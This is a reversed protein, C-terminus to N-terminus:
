HAESVLYPSADKTLTWKVNSYVYFFLGLTMGVLAHEPRELFTSAVTVALCVTSNILINPRYIPLTHFYTIQKGLYFLAMGSIALIRFDTMGIEGVIAHRILNALIALGMAFLVHSYLLPFGQEMRKTRELVDFSDFYIWWIAGIMLFGTAAATMNAGNWDIKQLGAVLSIVSEGLLIISLLGVREVFHSRHVSHVATRRSILVAAIMELAIGALFIAQRLPEDALLSTGSILAGVWGAVGMQRAFAVSPSEGAGSEGRRRSSYLYSTYLYMTALAGRIAVYFGILRGYHGFLDEGLSAAMTAILFMIGLTWVRYGKSDTDFRNAYLTHSAWIWWIPVFAVAFMVLQRLSLHAHGDADHHLHALHHTVVSIAAVFVLDFFLELWTAHRHADHYKLNQPLNQPLNRPLNQPLDQAQSM